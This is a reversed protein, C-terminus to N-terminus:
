AFYGVSGYGSDEVSVSTNCPHQKLGSLRHFNIAYNTFFFWGDVEGFDLGVAKSDFKSRKEKMAWM